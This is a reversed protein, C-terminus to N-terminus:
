PKRRSRQIFYLPSFIISLPLKVLVFVVFKLIWVVSVLASRFVFIVIRPGVKVVFLVMLSAIFFNVIRASSPGAIKSLETITAGHVTISTDAVIEACTSALAKSAALAAEVHPRQRKAYKALEGPAAIAAELVKEYLPQVFAVVLDSTPKVHEQFFPLVVDNYTPSIHAKVIPAVHADYSPQLSDTVVFLGALVGSRTKAYAHLLYIEAVELSPVLKEQYIKTAGPAVVERCYPGLAALDALAKAYVIGAIRQAESAAAASHETCTAIHPAAADSVAIYAARSNRAVLDGVDVAIELAERPKKSNALEAELIRANSKVAALETELAVYQEQIGSHKKSLAEAHEYREQIAAQQVESATLKGRLDQITATLAAMEDSNDNPTNDGNQTSSISQQDIETGGDPSVRVAADDQSAAVVAIVLVALANLGFKMRISAALKLSSNYVCYPLVPLYDHQPATCTDSGM